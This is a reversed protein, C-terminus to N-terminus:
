EPRTGSNRCERTEEKMKRRRTPPRARKADERPLNHLVIKSFRPSHLSPMGGTGATQTTVNDAGSSFNRSAKRPDGLVVERQEGRFFLVVFWYPLRPPRPRSERPNKM